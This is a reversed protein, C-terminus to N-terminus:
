CERRDDRVAGGRARLPRELLVDDADGFVAGGRDRREINLREDRM